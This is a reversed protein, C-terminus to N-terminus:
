KFIDPETVISLYTPDRWNAIKNILEIEKEKSSHLICGSTWNQDIGYHFRIGSFGDVNKILVMDKKFKPSWTVELEYFGDPIATEHKIKFPRLADESCEDFLISEYHSPIFLRSKTYDKHIKYRILNLINIKM